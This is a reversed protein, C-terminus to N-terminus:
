RGHRERPKIQNRILDATEGLRLRGRRKKL